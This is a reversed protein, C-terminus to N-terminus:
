ALSAMLEKPPANETGEDRLAHETTRPLDANDTQRDGGLARRGRTLLQQIHELEAQQASFLCFAENPSVPSVPVVDELYRM